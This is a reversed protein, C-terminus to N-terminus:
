KWIRYLDKLSYIVQKISSNWSAYNLLWAVFQDQPGFSFFKVHLIKIIKVCKNGATAHSNLIGEKDSILIFSLDKTLNYALVLVAIVAGNYIALKKGPLRKGSTRLSIVEPKQILLSDHWCRLLLSNKLDALKSLWHSKFIYIIYFNPVKKIWYQHWLLFVNIKKRNWKSYKVLFLKSMM